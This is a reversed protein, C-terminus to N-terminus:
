NERVCPLAFSFVAGEGAQGEAWMRGGYREVIRKCIALGLGTGAYENKHLRKFLGFIREAYQQDFGIGHDRVSIIWQDGERRTAIQIEPTVDKKRYKLANSLLNQFVHALHQTDGRVAPLPLVADIRAGSEEIAGKLLTLAETFSASLDATEFATQEAPDDAHHATRSFELVDHILAEMRTVCQRVVTAYQSLVPNSDGLGKLIMHAYLNVMRLPEKLDHSAVYAFEELERNANRLAVEAQKREHIDTCTGVWCVLSEERSSDRLVAAADLEGGLSLASNRKQGAARLRARQAGDPMPVARMLFWCWEKDAGRCFRLEQEYPTRSRVCERWRDMAPCEDEPHIGPFWGAALLQSVPVKFFSAAQESVYNLRGQGTATWVMQPMSEALFRYRHESEELQYRARVFATVDTAHVFLGDIAGAANKTPLCVFNVYMESPPDGLYALAEGDAYAQGSAFVQDFVRTYGQEVLEPLAQRIPKGILAASPRGVLREYPENVWEYQHEPGKFVAIAAPTQVLLERWRQRDRQVLEAARFQETIDRTSGAVAEVAGEANFVPVLVYDYYHSAGDAGAYATNDKVHRGTEIVQQIQKQVQAALDPPYGLDFFDKGVVAELPKQWLALLARNVYTFRGNLDFTYNHDPTSSLAGDFVQWQRHLDTEAKKQADIDINVGVSRQFAGNEDYFLRTQGRLWRQAGNPLLARFEFRYESRKEALCTELEALLRRGDAPVVRKLWHDVDGEFLGPELGYLAELEPTWIMSNGAAFWEFSGIRGVEQALRLRQQTAELAHAAKVQEVSHLCRSATFQLLMVEVPLWHRPTQQHVFFGAIGGGPLPQPVAAFARIGAQELWPLARAARPNQRIDAELAPKGARVAQAFDPGFQSLGCPTGALSAFEPRTHDRQLLLTWGFADLQWYACRDVGLHEALLRLGADLIAGPDTLPRLADELTSLFADHSIQVELAPM